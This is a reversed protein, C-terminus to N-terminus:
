KGPMLWVGHAAAGTGRVIHYGGNHPARDAPGGVALEPSTVWPMRADTTLEGIWWRAHKFNRRRDFVATYHSVPVTAITSDGDYASPCIMIEPRMRALELLVLPDLPPHGSLGDALNDDEMFPLLEIAWGGIAEPPRVEPFKHRADIFHTMAVDLQHLNSACTARRAGERSALLAPFLLALLLGIIAIVVLTEILTTAARNAVISRVRV